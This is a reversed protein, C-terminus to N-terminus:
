QEAGSTAASSASTATVSDQWSQLANMLTKMEDKLHMFKGLMLELRNEVHNRNESFEQCTDDVKREMERRVKTISEEL